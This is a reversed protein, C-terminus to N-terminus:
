RQEIEQIIEEFQFTNPQPVTITSMKMQLENITQMLGAVMSKLESISDGALNSGVLESNKYIPYEVYPDCKHLEVDSQTSELGWRQVDEGNLRERSRACVDFGSKRFSGSDHIFWSRQKYELILATIVRPICGFRIAAKARALALLILM